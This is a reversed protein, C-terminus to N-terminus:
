IKTTATSIPNSKISPTQFTTIASHILLVRVAVIRDVRRQEESAHLRETDMDTPRPMQQTKDYQTLNCKGGTLNIWIIFWDRLNWWIVDVERTVLEKNIGGNVSTVFNPNHTVM